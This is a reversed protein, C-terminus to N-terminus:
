RRKPEAAKGIAHNVVKEVYREDLSERSLLRRYILPGVIMAVIEATDRSRALEGRKKAQEIAERFASVREQHMKSHMRAVAPDREAADIISPLVTPWRATRLQNSLALALTLLDGRFSGTQPVAPRSSLQSCADIVLASRSPWHRYITTKAVGSRRSVEDVSLGNIGTEQLLEFTTALVTEKSRQVRSDAGQQSPRTKKGM